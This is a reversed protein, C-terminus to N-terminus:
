LSLISGSECVWVPAAGDYRGHILTLISDGSM